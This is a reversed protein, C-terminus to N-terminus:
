GDSSDEGHRGVSRELAATRQTAQDFFERVQEVATEAFAREVQEQLGVNNMIDIYRMQIVMIMAKAKWIREFEIHQENRCLLNWIYLHENFGGHTNGLVRTLFSIMQENLTDKVLTRLIYLRSHPITLTLITSLKMASILREEATSQQRPEQVPQQVSPEQVPSQQTSTHQTPPQSTPTQPPSGSPSRPSPQLRPRKAQENETSMVQIEESHTKQTEALNGTPVEQEQSSQTDPEETTTAAELPRKHNTNLNNLISSINVHQKLDDKKRARSQNESKKPIDDEDSDDKQLIYPRRKIPLEEDTGEDDDSVNKPPSNSGEGGDENCSGNPDSETIDGTDHDTSLKRKQYLKAAEAQIWDDKGDLAAIFAAQFEKGQRYVESDERNYRFCNAFMRNFCKGVETYYDFEGDELKQLMTTLDMPYRIISYYDPVENPDVPKIFPVVYGQNANLFGQIIHKYFEFELAFREENTMFM